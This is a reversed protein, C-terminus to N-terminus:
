YFKLSGQIQLWSRQLFLVASAHHLSGQPTGRSGRKTARGDRLPSSLGRPLTRVQHSPDFPHRIRIGQQLISVGDFAQRVGGSQTPEPTKEAGEHRVQERLVFARLRLYWHAETSRFFEDNLFSNYKM